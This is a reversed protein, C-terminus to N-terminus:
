LNNFSNLIPDLTYFKLFLPFYKGKYEQKEDFMRQVLRIFCFLSYVNPIFKKAFYKKWQRSLILNRM